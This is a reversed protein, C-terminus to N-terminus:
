QISVIALPLKQLYQTADDGQDTPVILTGGRSAALTVHTTAVSLLWYVYGDNLGTPTTGGSNWYIVPDNVVWGQAAVDASLTIVGTTTNICGGGGCGVPDIINTVPATELVRGINKGITSIAAADAYGATASMTLYEGLAVDSDESIAVRTIGAVVIPYTSAAASRVGPEYSLVGIALTGAGTAADFRLATAADPMVIQGPQVVADATMEVSFTQAEMMGTFKADAANTTGTITPSTITPSTITGGTITPTTLAPSLNLRVWASSVYRNWEHTVANFFPVGDTIGLNQNPTPTAGVGFLIRGHSDKFFTYSGDPAVVDSVQASALPALALLAALALAKKM